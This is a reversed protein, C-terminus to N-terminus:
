SVRFTLGLGLILGKYIRMSSEVIIGLRLILGLFPFAKRQARGVWFNETVYPYM